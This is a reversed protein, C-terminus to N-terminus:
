GGAMARQRPMLQCVGSARTTGHAAALVAADICEQRTMCHICQMPKAVHYALGRARASQEVKPPCSAPCATQCPASLPAFPIIFGLCSGPAPSSAAPHCTRKPLSPETRPAPLQIQLRALQLGQLQLPHWLRPPIRICLRESCGTTRSLRRRHGSSSRQDQGICGNRGLTSLCPLSAWRRSVLAQLASQQSRAQAECGLDARNPMEKSLPLLQINVNCHLCQISAFTEM